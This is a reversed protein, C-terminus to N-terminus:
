VKSSAPSEAASEGGMQRMGRQTATLQLRGSGHPDKAKTVHTPTTLIFTSGKGEESQVTVNGGLM